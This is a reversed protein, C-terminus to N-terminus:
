ANEILQIFFKVSKEINELSIRENTGHISSLEETNVQYPSFRYIYESVMEYKRADSCGLMLYPSVVAEPFIVVTTNKIIKFQECDVSSINSPNDLRLIEIQINDNNITKKIHNLLEEGTEDPAIRFNLTVSPKQPLINAEQSGKAMTTATTTRLLANGSVSKSFNRIFLKKFLWMNSIVIRNILPMEPGIHMILDHVPKTIKLPLQKEELSTVAKALEYLATRKPPMSAHGGNSAATLRISAFGKECIGIVAIPKKITPISGETVAGGEDLVFRFNIGKEKFYEAIELAGQKGGVEEDHGFALFIDYDPLDNEKILYEIAELIAIQQIKVDLTGRGWVYGDSIKGSFPKYTWNQETGEEIPVVDMHATLLIPERAQQKGQIHLILSYDNIVTKHAYQFTLPFKKEICKIYEDFKNWDNLSYDSNSITEIQVAESLKQAISMIDIDLEKNTHVCTNKGKFNVTKYTIIIILIFLIILLFVMIFGGEPSIDLLHPNSLSHQM